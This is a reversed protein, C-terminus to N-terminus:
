CEVFTSVNTITRTKAVTLHRGEYRSHLQHLCRRYDPSRSLILDILCSPLLSSGIQDLSFYRAHFPYRGV